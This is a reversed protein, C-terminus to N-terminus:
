PEIALQCGDGQILILEDLPTRWLVAVLDTPVGYKAPAFTAFLRVVRGLRHLRAVDEGSWTRRSGSGKAAGTPTIAQARIWYDLQRYTIGASACASHSDLLLDM